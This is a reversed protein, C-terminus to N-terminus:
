RARLATLAHVHRAGHDLACLALENLTSGTTLVDDVLVITSNHLLHSDPGPAFAQRVNSLRQTGRLTTQSQHHRRRRLVNTRVPIPVALSLGQAIQEAQNYGRERRRAPHIPVPIIMDAHISSQLSAFYDGMCLGIDTGIQRLGKYKLLHILTMLGGDQHAQVSFCSHVSELGLRDGPFHTVLENLTITAEPALPIRDMCAPCIYKSGPSHRDPILENCVVCIRPAIVDLIGDFFDIAYRSIGSIM